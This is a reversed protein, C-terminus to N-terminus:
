RLRRGFFHIPGVLDQPIPVLAEGARLFIYLWRSRPWHRYLRPRLRLTCGGNIWAPGNCCRGVTHNRWDERHRAGLLIGSRNILKPQVVGIM